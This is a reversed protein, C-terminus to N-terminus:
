VFDSPNPKAERAGVVEQAHMQGALALGCLLGIFVQKLMLLVTIFLNPAIPL